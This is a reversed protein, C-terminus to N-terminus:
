GQAPVVERMAKTPSVTCFTVRNSTSTLVTEVESLFDKFASWM